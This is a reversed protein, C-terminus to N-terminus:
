EFNEKLEIYAEEIKEFMSESDVARSRKDLVIIQKSMIMKDELLDFTKNIHETESEANVKLKNIKQRNDEISLLEKLKKKSFPLSFGERSYKKKRLIIEVSEADSVKSATDFASFLDQDLEKLIALENRAVEMQMLSIEGIDHLQFDLDMNLIPKIDIYEFPNSFNQSKELLYNKLSNTRPGYFNFEVGIVKQDHFYIFHTIEALGSNAPINLPALSGDIELEPLSSRRSIAFKGRVKNGIINVDNLFSVDNNSYYMFRSKPHNGMFSLRSIKEFIEMPNTHHHFNNSRARLEKIDFHFFHIKRTITNKSGIKVKSLVKNM